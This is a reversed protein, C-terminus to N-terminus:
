PQKNVSELYEAINKDVKARMESFYASESVANIVRQPIKPGEPTLYYEPKTKYEYSQNLGDDIINFTLLTLGEADSVVEGDASVWEYLIHAYVYLEGVVEERGFEIGQPYNLLDYLICYAAAFHRGEAYSDAETKRLYWQVAADITQPLVDSNLQIDAADPLGVAKFDPASGYNSDPQVDAANPLEAANFDSVSLVNDANPLEIASVRNLTFGASFVVAVIVAAFNMVRSPKKFNFVRKVRQKIGGEGFALPGPRVSQPVPTHVQTPSHTPTSTRVQASFRTPASACAQGGPCTDQSGGAIRRGASICVLSMSYDDRLAYGTEKMVREDCSMEMDVGCLWFAVWALPNFWHLCLILYAAFKVLHDHRRIHTQEHLLIYERELGSLGFPLYISPRLIGLVFPSKINDAEYINTRVRVANRIQGKLKVFSVAGYILMAAAVFIWIYSAAAFWIQLHNVNAAPAAAPLIGGVTNNVTSIDSGIFPVARASIDAPIPAAGWPILSFVSEVSFPFVLRFGAVAWLAYSIAKPAKKLPLRALCIATIVFAGTLSMNLITLFVKDMAM